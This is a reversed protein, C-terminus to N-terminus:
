QWSQMVKNYDVVRYGTEHISVADPLILELEQAIVGFGSKGRMEEIPMNDKWTWNYFNIGNVNGANKIDTKLREDSFIKALAGIVASGTAAQQQGVAAAGTQATQGIAQGAQQAQTAQGVSLNALLIALQEQQDAGLQGFGSLLNGINIGGQGIIDALGGGQRLSIDSLGRTTGAIQQAIDRGAQTRFGALNQGAGTFLGAAQGGAGAQLGGLLGGAQAAIGAGQGRLGAIGQATRGFIDAQGQGTQQAIRAGLQGINSLLGAGQGRLQGVQGAATLGAGTVQGLRNFQNQLDQLALGQGQRQLETLVNGGGLGGTAAAQNIIARQGQERLFAQGPSETFAQFAAAQAEPGLAGSLAAQQQNAQQGPSIFPTLGGTGQGIQGIAQQGTQGLQQQAQEAGAGLAQAGALGGRLFGGVGQQLLNLGLGAGERISGEAQGIGQGLASVAGRLGSQIGAEAGALGTQLQPLQPAINQMQPLLQPPPAQGDIVGIAGPRPDQNIIPQAQRQALLGPDQFRPRQNIGTLLAM